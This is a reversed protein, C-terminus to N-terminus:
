GFFCQITLREANTVTTGFLQYKKFMLKLDFCLAIYTPAFCICFLMFVNRNKCFKM